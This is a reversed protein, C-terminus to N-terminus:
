GGEVLISEEALAFLRRGMRDTLDSNAENVVRGSSQARHLSELHARVDGLYGRVAAVAERSERGVPREIGELWRDISPAASM